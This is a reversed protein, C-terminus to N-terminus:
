GEPRQFSQRTAGRWFHHCLCTHYVASSSSFLKKGAIKPQKPAKAHKAGNKGFIM